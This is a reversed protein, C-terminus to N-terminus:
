KLAANQRQICIQSLTMFNVMLTISPYNQYYVLIGSQTFLKAFILSAVSFNEKTQIPSM